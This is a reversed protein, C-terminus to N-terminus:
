EPIQRGNLNITEIDVTAFQKFKRNNNEMQIKYLQLIVYKGKSKYSESLTIKIFKNNKDLM